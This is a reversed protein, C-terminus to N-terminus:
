KKWPPFRNLMDTRGAADKADIIRSGLELHGRLDYQSDSIRGTEILTYTFTGILDTGVTRRQVAKRIVKTRPDLELTVQSVAMDRPHNRMKGVVRVPLGPGTADLRSLEYGDLLEAALNPVRLSMLNCLRTVPDNEEDRGYQLGTRNNLVVWVRGDRDRGWCLPRTDSNPDIWFQNGRVWLKSDKILTFHAPPPLFPYKKAIRAMDGLEVKVDYLRDTDDSHAVFVGRVLEAPTAALAENPQTGTTAPRESTVLLLVAAAAGIGIGAVLGAALMRWDRSRAPKARQAARVRAFVAAADVSAIEREVHERVLDDVPHHDGSFHSPQTM